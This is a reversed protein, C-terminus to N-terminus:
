SKYNEPEAALGRERPAEQKKRLRKVRGSESEKTLVKIIRDPSISHSLVIQYDELTYNMFSPDSMQEKLVKQSKNLEKEALNRFLATDDEHHLHGIGAEWALHEGLRYLITERFQAGLAKLTKIEKEYDDRTTAGVWHGFYAPLDEKKIRFVIGNYKKRKRSVIDNFFTVWWRDLAKHGTLPFCYLGNGSKTIGNKLISKTKSVPAWHVALM